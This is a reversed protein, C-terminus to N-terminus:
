FTFTSSILGLGISPTNKMAMYGPMTMHLVMEEVTEMVMNSKLEEIDSLNPLGALKRVFTIIASTQCYSVGDVKL